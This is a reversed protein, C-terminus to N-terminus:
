MPYLYWEYTFYHDSEQNNEYHMKKSKYEKMYKSHTIVNM